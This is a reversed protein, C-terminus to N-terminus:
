VPVKLWVDFQQNLQHWLMQKTHHSSLESLSKVECYSRVWALSSEEDTASASHEERLFRWFAEKMCLLHAQAGPQLLRWPVKAGDPKPVVQRPEARAEKQVPLEDDGVQVLAGVWRSGIPAVALEAPLQEPHVVFSVVIGDKNKRYAYLILECPVANALAQDAPTM